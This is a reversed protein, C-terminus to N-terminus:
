VNEPDFRLELGQYTDLKPCSVERLRLKEERYFLHSACLLNEIFLLDNILSAQVM